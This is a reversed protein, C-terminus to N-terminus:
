YAVVGFDDPIIAYPPDLAIKAPQLSYMDLVIRVIQRPLASRNAAV